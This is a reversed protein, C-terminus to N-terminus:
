ITKTIVNKSGLFTLAKFTMALLIGQKDWVKVTTEDEWISADDKIWFGGKESEDLITHLKCVVVALEKHM